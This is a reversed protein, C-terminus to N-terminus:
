RKMIYDYVFADTGNKWKGGVPYHQSAGAHASKGDKEPFSILHYANPEKHDVDIL